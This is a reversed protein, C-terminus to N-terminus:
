ASRVLKKFSYGIDKIEEATLITGEPARGDLKFVLAVQGVEQAFQIRNVPVEVGLLTTMVKATSEHGVASIFDGGAVLAQAEELDITELTYDGDSTAISTNLLAVKHTQSM